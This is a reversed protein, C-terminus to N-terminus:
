PKKRNWNTELEYGHWESRKMAIAADLFDNATAWAFCKPPVTGIQSLLTDLISYVYMFGQTWSSEDFLKTSYGLTQQRNLITKGFLKSSYSLRTTM